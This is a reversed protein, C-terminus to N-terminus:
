VIEEAFDLYKKDGTRVYLQCIPELVSSAAMGRHNGMKVIKANKEALEKMLFDAQKAAADLAVRDKTIDYYAILGLMCYKRGWIDWAKLRSEPAYNGIYGDPTQTKILAYVAEKLKEALIPTPRYQYALVASTFWKGWFEGQWCHHEDRLTFPEVLREIDQALIRNEYSANFKEGAYRNIKALTAPTLRDHVKEEVTTQACIFQAFLFLLVIVIHKM